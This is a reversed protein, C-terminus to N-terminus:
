GTVPTRGDQCERRHYLRLAVLGGVFGLLPSWLWKAIQRFAEFDVVTAPLTTVNRTAWVQVDLDSVAVGYDAAPTGYLQPIAAREDGIRGPLVPVGETPSLVPPTLRALRTSLSM